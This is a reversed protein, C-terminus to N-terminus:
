QDFDVVLEETLPRAQCTLIYGAKLEYPELSYNVDMEVQGKVLKARCTSCMGGKCSYPLDAGNALAAELVTDGYYSMEM